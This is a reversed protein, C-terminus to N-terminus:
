LTSSVSARKLGREGQEMWPLNVVGSRFWEEWGAGNLQVANSSTEAVVTIYKGNGGTDISWPALMKAMLWLSCLSIPIRPTHPTTHHPTPLVPESSYHAKCRREKHVRCLRIFKLNYHRHLSLTLLCYSAALEASWCVLAWHRESSCVWCNLFCFPRM